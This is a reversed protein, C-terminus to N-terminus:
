TNNAQLSAACLDNIEQCKMQRFFSQISFYGASCTVNEPRPTQGKSNTTYNSKFFQLKETSQSQLNRCLEKIEMNSLNKRDTTSEKIM